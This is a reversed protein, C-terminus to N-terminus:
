TKPGDDTDDMLEPQHGLVNLTEKHETDAHNSM